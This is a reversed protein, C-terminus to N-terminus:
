RMDESSDAESNIDKSAAWGWAANEKIWESTYPESKNKKSMQYEAKLFLSRSEVYLRQALVVAEARLGTRLSRKIERRGVIHRLHEPVTLRFYFVGSRPNRQYPVNQVVEKYL